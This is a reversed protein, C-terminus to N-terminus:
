GVITIDKMLGFTVLLSRAKFSDYEFKGLLCYESSQFVSPIHRDPHKMTRATGRPARTGKIHEIPGNPFLLSIM